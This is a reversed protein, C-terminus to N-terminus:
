RGLLVDLYRRVKVRDIGDWEARRDMADSYQQLLLQQDGAMPRHFGLGDLFHIEDATEWQIVGNVYKM